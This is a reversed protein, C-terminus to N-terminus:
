QREWYGMFRRPMKCTRIFLAIFVAISVASGIALFAVYNPAWLFCTLNIATLLLAPLYSYVSRLSLVAYHAILLAQFQLAALILACQMGALLFLVMEWGISMLESVTAIVWPLLLLVSVILTASRFMFRLFSKYLQRKGFALALDQPPVAGTAQLAFMILVLWPGILYMYLVVYFNLFLSNFAETLLVWYCGLAFLMLLVSIVILLRNRRWWERRCRRFWANLAEHELIEVAM